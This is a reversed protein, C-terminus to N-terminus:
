LGLTTRIKEVHYVPGELKVMGPILEVRIRDSFIGARLTPNFIIVKQFREGMRYGMELLILQLRTQIDVSPDIELSVEASRVMYGIGIGFVMGCGFGLGVALYIGQVGLTHFKLLFYTMGGFMLGTLPFILLFIDTFSRRLRAGERHEARVSDL